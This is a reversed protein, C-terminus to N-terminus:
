KQAKKIAERLAKAGNLQSVDIGLQAAYKHLQPVDMESLPIESLDEEDDEAEEIAVELEEKTMNEYGEIELEAAKAKLQEFEEDVHGTEAGENSPDTASEPTGNEPNKGEGSTEGKQEDLNTKPDNEHEGDIMWGQPKYIEKYAGAPVTLKEGKFNTIRVLAM